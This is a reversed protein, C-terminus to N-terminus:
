AKGDKMQQEEAVVSGCLFQCDVFARRFDNHIEAPCMRWLSQQVALSINCSNGHM